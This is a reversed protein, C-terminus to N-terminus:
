LLSESTMSTLSISDLSSTQASQSRCSFLYATPSRLAMSAPPPAYRFKILITSLFFYAQPQEAVVQCFLVQAGPDEECWIDPPRLNTFSLREAYKENRLRSDLSAFRLQFRLFLVDPTHFPGPANQLPLMAARYIGGEPPQASHRTVLTKGCTFGQRLRFKSGGLMEIVSPHLSATRRPVWFSLCSM